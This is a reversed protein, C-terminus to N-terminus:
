GQNPGRLKRIASQVRRWVEAEELNGAKKCARHRQAAEAEAKGGRVRYLAHAYESVRIADLM